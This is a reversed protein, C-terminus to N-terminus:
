IIVRKQVQEVVKYCPMRALELQEHRAPGSSVQLAGQAVRGDHVDGELLTKDVGVNACEDAM